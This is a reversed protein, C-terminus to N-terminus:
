GQSALQRAQEPEAVVQVEQVGPRNRAESEEQEAQEAGPKKRDSGPDSQRSGSPVSVSLAAESQANEAVM